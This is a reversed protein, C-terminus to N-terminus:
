INSKEIIKILKKVNQESPAHIGKEWRYVTLATTKFRGAFKNQSEGLSIRLAKIEQSEIM